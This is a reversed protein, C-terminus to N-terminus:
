HVIINRWPRASRVDGWPALWVVKLGPIDPTGSARALKALEADTAAAPVILLAALIAALLRSMMM